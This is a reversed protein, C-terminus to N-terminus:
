VIGEEWVGKKDKVRDISFINTEREEREGDVLLEAGVKGAGASQQLGHGSFGSLVLCNKVEPHIALFCNQDYTNYDYFGAWSAQPKLSGFAPVLDYLIPWIEEEFHEKDRQKIELIKEIRDNGNM